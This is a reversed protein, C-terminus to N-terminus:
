NYWDDNFVAREERDEELLREARAQISRAEGILDELGRAEVRNADRATTKTWNVVTKDNNWADVLSSGINKLNDWWSRAERDEDSEFMSREYGYGRTSRRRRKIRNDFINKALKVTLEDMEQLAPNDSGEFRRRGWSWDMKQAKNMLNSAVNGVKKGIGSNNWWGTLTDMLGRPDFDEDTMGRAIGDDYAMRALEETVARAVAREAMYDGLVERVEDESLTGFREELEDDDDPSEESVESDDDESRAWRDYSSWRRRGLGAELQAMPDKDAAFTLTSLALLNYIM